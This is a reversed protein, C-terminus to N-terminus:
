SAVPDRVEDVPEDAVDHDSDPHGESLEEAEDSVPLETEIGNHGDWGRPSWSANGVNVGVVEGVLLSSGRKHVTDKESLQHMVPRAIASANFDM